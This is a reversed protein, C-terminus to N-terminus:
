KHKAATRHRFSGYYSGYNYAYEHTPVGNLVVGM